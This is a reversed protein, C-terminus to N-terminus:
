RSNPYEDEGGSRLDVNTGLAPRGYDNTDPDGFIAQQYGPRSPRGYDNTDPEDACVHFSGIVLLLVYIFFM